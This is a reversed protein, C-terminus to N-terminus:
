HKYKHLVFPDSKSHMYVKSVHCFIEKILNYSFTIIVNLLIKNVLKIFSSANLMKKM